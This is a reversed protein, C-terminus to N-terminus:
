AEARERRRMRLGTTLVAVLAFVQSSRPEPILTFTLNDMTPGAHNSGLWSIEVDTVGTFRTDFSFRQFDAQGGRGDMIGDTRFSISM